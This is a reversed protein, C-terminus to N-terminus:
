TSQEWAHLAREASELAEASVGFLEADELRDTLEQLTPRIAADVVASRLSAEQKDRLERAVGSMYTGLAGETLMSTLSLLAPTLLLGGAALGATKIALAVAAAEATVRAARLTNLLAPRERLMEHLRRAAVRIESAFRREHEDIAGAFRDRLKRDDVRLKRRLARWVAAGSSTEDSERLVRRELTALLTEVCEELVLRESSAPRRAGPSAGRTRFEYLKRAPLTLWGRVTTMARAAVPLELEELLEAVARRFTDFREPCDLFNRRHARCFAEVADDVQALWAQAAAHEARLPSTCSDWNERILRAVDARTLSGATGILTDAASRLAAVAAVSGGRLIRPDYPLAVVKASAAVGGLEGLKRRLAAVVPVVAEDSLKNVCVLLPRGLPALRKLMAWVTLDSYKEKSVVLLHAHAGAAVDLIARVHRHAAISDFDPTDWLVYDARDCAAKPASEGGGLPLLGDPQGPPSAQQPARSEICSFGVQAPEERNLRHPALRPWDPLFAAICDSAIASGDPACTAFAQAHVTFGALPSVQAAEQGALCNVVTSKGTQTPGLVALHRTRSDSGLHRLASSALLLALVPEAAGNAGAIARHRDALHSLFAALVREPDDSIRLDSEDREHSVPTNQAGRVSNSLM